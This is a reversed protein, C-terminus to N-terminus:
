RSMYKSRMFKPVSLGKEKMSSEFMYQQGHM